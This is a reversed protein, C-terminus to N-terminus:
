MFKAIAAGFIAAVTLSTLQTVIAEWRLAPKNELAGIRSSQNQQRNITEEVRSGQIKVQYALTEISTALKHIQSTLADNEDIRKHASKISENLAALARENALVREELHEFTM